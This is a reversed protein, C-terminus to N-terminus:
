PKSVVTQGYQDLVSKVANSFERGQAPSQFDQEYIQFEVDGSNKIDTLVLSRAAGSQQGYTVFLVSRGVLHDTGPAARRIMRYSQLQSDMKALLDEYRAPSIQVHGTVTPKDTTTVSCSFLSFMAILMVFYRMM